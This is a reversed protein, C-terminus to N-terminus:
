MSQFLDAIPKRVKTIYQAQDEHSRYGVAAVVTAKLGQSSLGLIEDYKEPLFGEMPCSDVHLEACAALLIGLAIYTQRAAWDIIEQQNKEGLKTKMYNGYKTLFADDLKQITARRQLYSDMYGEPIHLFSCFIFVHSADKVQMQNWSAPVLKEKICLDEVVLVKFPQLGFSSASLSIATKIKEIDKTNVKKTPDFKKTAYRWVLNDILQM